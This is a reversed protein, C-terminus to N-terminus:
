PVLVGARVAIRKTREHLDQATRQFSEIARRTEAVTLSSTGAQLRDALEQVVEGTREHTVSRLLKLVSENRERVNKSNEVELYEDIARSHASGFSYMEELLQEDTM